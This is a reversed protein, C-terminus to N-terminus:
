PTYKTTEEVNLRKYYEAVSEALMQRKGDLIGFFLAVGKGHDTEIWAHSFRQYSPPNCIGHVLLFEDTNAADPHTKLIECMLDLADDFCTHTPYLNM